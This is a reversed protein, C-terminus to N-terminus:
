WTSGALEAARAPHRQASVVAEIPLAPTEVLVSPALAVSSVCDDVGMGFERRSKAPPRGELDVRELRAHGRDRGLARLLEGSGVAIEVGLDVHRDV